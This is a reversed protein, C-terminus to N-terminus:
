ICTPAMSPYTVLSYFKNRFSSVTIQTVSHLAHDYIKSRKKCAKDTNPTKLAVIVETCHSNVKHELGQLILPCTDVDKKRSLLTGHVDQAPKFLLHCGERNGEGLAYCVQM